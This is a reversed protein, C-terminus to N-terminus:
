SEEIRYHTKVRSDLQVLTSCHTRCGIVEGNVLSSPVDTRDGGGGRALVCTSSWNWSLCSQFWHSRNQVRNRCVLRISPGQLEVGSALHEIFIWDVYIFESPMLPEERRRGSCRRIHHHKDAQALSCTFSNLTDAQKCPAMAHWSSM